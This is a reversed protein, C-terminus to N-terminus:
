KLLSRDGQSITSAEPLINHYNLLTEPRLSGMPETKEFFTVLVM